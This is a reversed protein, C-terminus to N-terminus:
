EEAVGAPTVMNHIGPAPLTVRYGLRNVEGRLFTPYEVLPRDDTVVLRGDGWPLPPRDLINLVAAVDRTREYAAIERWLPDSSALRRALAAEDIRIPENSLVLLYGNMFTERGAFVTAATQRVAFAQQPEGNSYLCFVGGPKLRQSVLQFFEKSNLLSSGAQKLYLPQTQILDYKKERLSLGSRADEWIINIKPNDALGLTGQRYEAYIDKLTHNFEYADVTRMTDLKALTGATIGLGLGIVCADEIEGTSHAIVPCTALYWNNTGIHDSGDSLASHWLGDWFMDRSVQHVGIVGDRGYYVKVAPSLSSLDVKLGVAVVAGCAALAVAGRVRAWARREAAQRLEELAFLLPVLAFAMMFYPMEYGVLTMLVVGLCSGCTNWGYIRGVDRGWSEAAQATVLGFLYGFALCPLFYFCRTAIFWSLTLLDGIAGMPDFRTCLLTLLISFACLRMGASLTLRPHSSLAAGVSWFLLFGTIVAAFTFPLPEHMLAFLRLLFMEYGLSCFGLGLALVEYVSPRWWARAAADRPRTAGLRSSSDRLLEASHRSALALLVLTIGATANGAVAWLLSVTQGFRPLMFGGSVLAGGVSGVTNLFMLWGLATSNVWGLRRQCVEAALPMTAGMLLCPVMLVATAALAYFVLLPVGAATAMKQAGYVTSALDLRLLGAVGLNALALAGEILGLALLPDRMQTSRRGMWLSGIGLGAMFVLVVTMSALTESGGLVRGLSRQWVVQNVLAAAGSAFLALGLGAAFLVNLAGGVPSRITTSDSPKTM